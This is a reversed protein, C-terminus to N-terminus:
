IGNKVNQEEFYKGLNGEDSVLQSNGRAWWNKGMRGNSFGAM